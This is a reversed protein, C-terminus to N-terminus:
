APGPLRTTRSSRRLPRTSNPRAAPNPELAYWTGASTQRSNGRKLSRQCFTTSAQPTLEGSCNCVRTRAIQCRWVDLM